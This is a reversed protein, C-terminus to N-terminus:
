LEIIGFPVALQELAIHLRDHHTDTIFVQGQEETCVKHLLNHMRQADLKEFVDDLLLLPAFGNHQKLTIFEGLKLAFLLSKRQGQSAISKFPQEGMKMVLDDKHIGAGTRQLYLDRQRNQQLLSAFSQNNLQSDYNLTVGDNSGAISQYQAEVLPIFEAAFKRREAYIDQGKAYLQEDLIDLLAEDLRRHEAAAKLLGNRQQLIKNYDILQQLYGASLQALLTDIMKRREESGGTILETDDPAIMVCPYRGIHSSFKKYESDNLYFEKKNNERLICVLKATEGNKEFLGEIRLGQMGHHVSQSDPRSFYSRTFCLYYIADLLNTKGSGNPGSIGTVRNPFQFQQYLYNRYQTVTIHPLYLM